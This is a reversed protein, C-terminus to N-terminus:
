VLCFKPGRSCYPKVKLSNYHGYIVQYVVCLECNDVVFEM